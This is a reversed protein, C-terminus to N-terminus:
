KNPYDTRNFDMSSIRAVSFDTALSWNVELSHPNETLIRTKYIYRFLCTLTTGDQEELHLKGNVNGINLCLSLSLKM